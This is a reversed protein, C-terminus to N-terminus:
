RLLLNCNSPPNSLSVLFILWAFTASSFCPSSTQLSEIFRLFTLISNLIFSHNLRNSRRILCWILYWFMAFQIQYASLWVFKFSSIQDNLYNCKAYQRYYKYIQYPSSYLFNQGAAECLFWHDPFDFIQDKFMKSLFCVHNQVYKM